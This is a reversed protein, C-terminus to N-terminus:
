SFNTLLSAQIFLNVTGLECNVTSSLNFIGHHFWPRGWFFPFRGFVPDSETRHQKMRCAIEDLFFRSPFLCPCFCQCYATILENLRHLFPKSDLGCVAADLLIGRSSCTQELFWNSSVVGNRTHFPLDLCRFCGEM